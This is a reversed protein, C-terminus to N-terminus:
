SSFYSCVSFLEKPSSCEGRYRLIMSRNKLFGMVIKLFWTPVGMDSLITILINHNQNNFAKSYDIMTALVAHSPDLDQNYHVFNMLDILYHSISSGKAGGYQGPDIQDGIFILLWELVFKEFVKSLFNTLSINRLDDETEPTKVKAVPTVYEVKWQSAWDGSNIINNFIATAPKALQAPLQQLLRKPLDGPLVSKSKKASAIKCLVDYETVRPVETPNVPKSIVTQVREPLLEFSLLPFRQSINAFNAAILVASQKVSLNQDLHQPLTFTTDQSEGPHAALNKM